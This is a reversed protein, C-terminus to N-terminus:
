TDHPATQEVLFALWVARAGIAGLMLLQGVLLDPTTV